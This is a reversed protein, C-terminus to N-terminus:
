LTSKIFYGGQGKLVVWRIYSNLKISDVINFTPIHYDLTQQVM